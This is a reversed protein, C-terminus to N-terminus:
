CLRTARRTADERRVSLRLHAVSGSGVGKRFADASEFLAVTHNWPNLDADIQSGDRRRLRHRNGDSGAREIVTADVLEAAVLVLLQEGHAYCVPSGIRATTPADTGVQVRYTESLPAATSSLQRQESLRRESLLGHVLTAGVIEDM